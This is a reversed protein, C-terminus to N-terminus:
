LSYFALFGRGPENLNSAPDLERHSYPQPETLRKETELAVEMKLADSIPGRERACRSSHRERGGEGARREGLLERGRGSPMRQKWPNKHSSHARRIKWPLVRIKLDTIRIVDVFDRKGYLTFKEWTRPTLANVNQPLPLPPPHSTEM